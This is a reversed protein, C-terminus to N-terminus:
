GCKPVQRAEQAGDMYGGRIEQCGKLLIRAIMTMLGCCLELGMGMGASAMLRITTEEGEVDGVTTRDHVWCEYGWALVHRPM